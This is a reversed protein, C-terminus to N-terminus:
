HLLLSLLMYLHALVCVCACLVCVLLCLVYNATLTVINCNYQGPLPRVRCGCKQGGQEQIGAQVANSAQFFSCCMSQTKVVVTM